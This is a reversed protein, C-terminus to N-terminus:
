NTKIKRYAFKVALRWNSKSDSDFRYIEGNKVESVLILAPGYPVLTRYYSLDDDCVATRGPFVECFKQKAIENFYDPRGKPPFFLESKLGMRNVMKKIDGLLLRSQGSVYVYLQKKNSLFLTADTTQSVPSNAVVIKAIDLDVGFLSKIKKSLVTADSNDDKM